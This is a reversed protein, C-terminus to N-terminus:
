VAPLLVYTHRFINSCQRIVKCHACFFQHQNLIIWCLNIVSQTLYVDSSAFLGQLLFTFHLHMTKNVISLTTFYEEEVPKSKSHSDDLLGQRFHLFLFESTLYAYM